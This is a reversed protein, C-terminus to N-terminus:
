YYCNWGIPMYKYHSSQYIDNYNLLPLSSHLCKIKLVSYFSKHKSIYNCSIWYAYKNIIDKKLEIDWNTTCVDYKWGKNSNDIMADICEDPNILTFYEIMGGVTNENMFNTKLVWLVYNDNNNCIQKLDDFSVDNKHLIYVKDTVNNLKVYKNLKIDQALVGLIRTKKNTNKTINYAKNINLVNSVIYNIDKGIYFNNSNWINDAKNQTLVFSPNNYKKDYISYHMELIKTFNFKDIDWRYPFKNVGSEFKFLKLKYEDDRKYKCRYNQSMVGEPMSNCIGDHMYKVADAFFEKKIKGDKYTEPNESPIHRSYYLMPMDGPLAWYVIDHHWYWIYTGLIHIDSIRKNCNGENIIYYKIMIDIFNNINHIYTIHNRVAKFISKHVIFPLSAMFCAPIESKDLGLFWTADWVTSNWGIVIPKGERFLLNSTVPMTFVADSDMIAVYDTESDIYYDIYLKTLQACNWGCKKDLIIMRSNSYAALFHMEVKVEWDDPILLSYWSINYDLIVIKKGVNKPWFLKVSHVLMYFMSIEDKSLIVVLDVRGPWPYINSYEQLSKILKDDSNIVQYGKTIKHVTISSNYLLYTLITINISFYITIVIAINSLKTVM